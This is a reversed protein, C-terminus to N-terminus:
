PRAVIATYSSYADVVIFDVEIVESGAQVPLRIQGKPAVLKGDFGVLPSDYATLDEPKLNLGKYLDPYMVEVYSGQDVMMRKVDYGGIQLTVVLADGHPQITGIKDEDSFSLLPRIEVKARKPESNLDEALSRAVSMVRTPQSGTRELTAFIVNIMGLPPGSSASGQGQSRAQNGQGNPRYLFQQLKGEKVLQELHNWLTQCDETTHGRDPERFVTNVEQPAAPGSQEAFDRRPKNNNYRELKFDRREQPIVKSKGKDQLQDEEVRKYKDIRDMLQRISTVPKGTLSKRLGHGAPLGLKFTSIAVDKFDGEIENFMKWYRGSYTKLTEDERMSLSLLSALPRPAKSCTIFRSGFMQTLEKFSNISGARLGNFWRMAVPGLSSPFVKCMLAENKSHITMKQNFHSIHEVPNTRGNYLTFTPQTFRRPFRGGEIWRTFPSKSVQNLAKNMADNVLGRSSSNNSRHSHCYDEDYLFSESPPTRSRQRYDQDEEDDSSYDSNSPARRKHEHCLSRKLHDIEKQM